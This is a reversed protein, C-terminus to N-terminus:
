VQVLVRERCSARGIEVALRIFERNVDIYARPFRASILPAGLAAVDGVLEDVYCDESKRLATPDLRVTDLFAKPYVRGSHPSCWVFPATQRVPREVTFPPSFEALISARELHPM